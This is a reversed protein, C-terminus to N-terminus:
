TNGALGGRAAYEWEAEMPLRKHAWRAYAVADDWSVHVVPHDDKGSLDSQPGDPHRWNAGPSWAWWDADATLGPSPSFILSGPEDSFESTIEATTVYGTAEVFGRFQANTVETSDMWFGTVRVRHVPQEDAMAEPSSSGMSFEGGPIWIMGAPANARTEGSADQCAPFLASALLGLIVRCGMASAFSM